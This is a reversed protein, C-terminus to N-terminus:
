WKIEGKGELYVKSMKRHVCIDEFGDFIGGFDHRWTAYPEKSPSFDQKGKRTQLVIDLM